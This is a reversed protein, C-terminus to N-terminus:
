PLLPVKASEDMYARVDILPEQPVPLIGSNPRDLAIILTIMLSFTLVMVPTLWSKRNSGAVSVQYGVSFMGLIVLTFLLIIIITPIRTQIAVAIRIAQINFMENLSEIYMAGTHTDLEDKLRVVIDWTKHQIMNAEKLYEQIEQPELKQTALAIRIDVYRKLMTETEKRDQEPL